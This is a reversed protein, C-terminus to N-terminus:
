LGHSTLVDRCLKGLKAKHAILCDLTAGRKGLVADKFCFHFAAPTCVAREAASEKTAQAQPAAIPAAAAVKHKHRHAAIGARVDTVVKDTTQVANVGVSVASVIPSISILFTVVAALMVTM